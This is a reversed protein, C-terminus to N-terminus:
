PALVALADAVVQDARDIASRVTARPAEHSGGFETRAAYPAVNVVHVVDGPQLNQLLADLEGLPDPSQGAAGVPDANLASFWSAKLEGTHRDKPGAGVPTGHIVEAVVSHAGVAFSTVLKRRVDLYASSNFTFTM